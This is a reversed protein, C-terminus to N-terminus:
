TFPRDFKDIRAQIIERIEKLQLYTLNGAWQKIQNYKRDSEEKKYARHEADQKQARKGTCQNCKCWSSHDTQGIPRNKRYKQLNFVPKGDAPESNQMQRRIKDKEWDLGM